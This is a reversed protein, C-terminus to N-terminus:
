ALERMVRDALREMEAPGYRHDVPLTLMGDRLRDAVPDATDARGLARWHVACFLGEAALRAAMADRGQSLLLPYGFPAVAGRLRDVVPAARASLRADLVAFNERRRAAKEALSSAALIRRTEQSMALDAVAHAREIAVYFRYAEGVEDRTTAAARAKAARDHEPPPLRRAPDPLSSVPGVLLGGDAVGLLKRSSYLQWAEPVDDAVALAQARDELWVVDRRRAALERLSQCVSAGFYAVAVVLDGPLLGAEFESDDLELSLNVGYCRVRPGAGQEMDACLYRPLWVTGPKVSCVLHAFASRANHFGVWEGGRTWQELVSGVAERAEEPELGFFGGITPAATM